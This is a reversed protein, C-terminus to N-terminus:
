PLIVFEDQVTAPPISVRAINENDRRRRFLRRLPGEFPEFM